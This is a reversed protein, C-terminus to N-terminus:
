EGGEPVITERAYAEPDRKADEKVKELLQELPSVIEKGSKDAPGRLVEEHQKKSAPEM